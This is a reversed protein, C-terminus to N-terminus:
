SRPSSCLFYEVERGSDGIGVISFLPKNLLYPHTHRYLRMKEVKCLQTFEDSYYWGIEKKDWEREAYVYSKFLFKSFLAPGGVFLSMGVICVWFVFSDKINIYGPYVLNFILWMLILFVAVSAVLGTHRALWGRVPNEHCYAYRRLLADNDVINAMYQQVDASVRAGVGTQAIIWEATGPGPDVFRLFTIM